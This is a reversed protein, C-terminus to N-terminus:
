RTPGSDVQNEIVGQIAESVNSLLDYGTAQEIADVTTRYTGWDTSLSNINPINVAIVRTSTSIRSIDDDGEPLVVLVKWIQAPVVVKGQAITQAQGNTGTGGTGYNGMIVFVENGDEVLERTYDELNAWTEQNNTPAQPIINTMLFTVSNDEATRTRDASPVNHGRDFGSGTYDSTKVRYWGEPLTADARFDNQRPADGILDKNVHWSVWNPIGKDRSYSLAYQPKMMLYNNYNAPDATAMSPNGFAVQQEELTLPTSPRIEAQKCSNVLVIFLIIYRSIKHIM